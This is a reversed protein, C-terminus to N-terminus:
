AQTRPTNYTSGIHRFLSLRFGAGRRMTFFVLYGWLLAVPVAKSAQYWIVSWGAWGDQMRWLEFGESMPAGTNSVNAFFWYPTPVALLVFVALALVRLDPRVAVLLVLAPLLMVYHSEWVVGYTLFFAALWIAFVVV